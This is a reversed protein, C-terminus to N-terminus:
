MPHRNARFDAIQGLQIPPTAPVQLFDEFSPNTFYIPQSQAFCSLTAACCLLLILHNKM